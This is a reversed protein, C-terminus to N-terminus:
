KTCIKKHNPYDACQCEKCCYKILKCRQCTLLHIQIENHACYNCQQYQYSKIVTKIDRKIESAETFSDMAQLIPDNDPLLEIYGIHHLLNYEGILNLLLLDIANYKNPMWVKRSNSPAHSNQANNPNHADPTPNTEARFYVTRQELLTTAAPQKIVLVINLLPTRRDSDYGISGQYLVDSYKFTFDPYDVTSMIPDHEHYPKYRAVLLNPLKPRAAYLQEVFSINTKSCIPSLYVTLLAKHSNFVQRNGEGFTIEIQIKKQLEESLFGHIFDLINQNNIDHKNNFVANYIVSWQSAFQDWFKIYNASTM